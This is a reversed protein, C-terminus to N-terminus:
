YSNTLTLVFYYYGYIPIVLTQGVVLNNPNEIKNSEALVGVPVSYLNSINYLSDNESVVHIQM